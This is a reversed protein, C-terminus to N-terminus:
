VLGKNLKNHLNSGLVKHSGLGKHDQMIFLKSREDKGEETWLEFEKGKIIAQRLCDATGRSESINNHFALVLDPNEEDLMKRNRVPGAVRGNKEGEAPYVKVKFKYNKALHGALSDAGSAGGHVIVTYEPLGQLARMIMRSNKWHRDGTVLVKM